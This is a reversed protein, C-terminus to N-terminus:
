TNKVATGCITACEMMLAFHSAEVHPGGQKLCYHMTEICFAECEQVTSSAERMPDNMPQKHM